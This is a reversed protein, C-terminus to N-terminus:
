IYFKCNIDFTLCPELIRPNLHKNELSNILAKIMESSDKIGRGRSDKVDM